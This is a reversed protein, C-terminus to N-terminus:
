LFILSEARMECLSSPQDRWETMRRKVLRAGLPYSIATLWLMHSREPHDELSKKLSLFHGSM